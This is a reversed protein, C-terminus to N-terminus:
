VLAGLNLTITMPTDEFLGQLGRTTHRYQAIQRLKELDNETVDFLEWEESNYEVPLPNPFLQIDYLQGSVNHRWAKM